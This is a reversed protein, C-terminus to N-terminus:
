NRPFIVCNMVLAFERIEVFEGWMHSEFNKSFIAMIPIAIKLFNAFIMYLIYECFDLFEGWSHIM